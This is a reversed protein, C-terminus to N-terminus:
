RWRPGFRVGVDVPPGYYYGPGYAYGYGYPPGPAYYCDGLILATAGVLAWKLGAMPLRSTRSIQM